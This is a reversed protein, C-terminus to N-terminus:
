QALSGTVWGSDYDGAAPCEVEVHLTGCHGRSLYDDPSLFLTLIDRDLSILVQPAMHM